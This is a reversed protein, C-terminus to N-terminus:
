APGFGLFMRTEQWITELSSSLRHDDELMRLSVNPRAGCFRRVMDPSVVPDSAGQFILAPIRVEASFSDYKQADEYLGFHVARAAQEAHHFVELRGTKRWAELAETDFGSSDARCFDLAPAMLVLREITASGPAPAQRLGGASSQRAAAHYAVFGGLSSGVLAVKVPGLADLDREVREIMRTVTLSFFEPENFDPCIFEVGLPALRRSFYEAKSSSASSAFGHIYYVHRPAPRAAPLVLDRVEPVDAEIHERASGSSQALLGSRTVCIVKAVRRRRGVASPRCSAPQDEIYSVASGGELLFEIFRDNSM